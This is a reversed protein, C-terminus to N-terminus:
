FPGEEERSNLHHVSQENKEKHGDKVEDDIREDAEAPDAERSDVGTTTSGRSKIACM